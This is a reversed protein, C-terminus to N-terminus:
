LDLQEESQGAASILKGRVHFIRQLTTVIGIAAATSGDPEISFILSPV